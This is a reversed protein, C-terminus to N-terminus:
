SYQAGALFRLLTSAVELLSSRACDISLTPSASSRHRDYSDLRLDFRCRCHAEVQRSANLQLERRRTIRIFSGDCSHRGTQDTFPLFHRPASPMEADTLLQGASDRGEIGRVMEPIREHPTCESAEIM